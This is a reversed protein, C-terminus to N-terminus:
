LACEGSKDIKYLECMWPYRMDHLIYDFWLIINSECFINGGKSVEKQMLSLIYWDIGITMRVSLCVNLTSGRHLQNYGAGTNYM